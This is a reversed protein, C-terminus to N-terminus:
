AWAINQVLGPHVKFPLFTKRVILWSHRFCRFSIVEVRLFYCVPHTIEKQRRLSWSSSSVLLCFFWSSPNKFKKQQYFFFSTLGTYLSKTPGPCSLNPINILIRIFIVSTIEFILAGIAGAQVQKHGHFTHVTQLPGM